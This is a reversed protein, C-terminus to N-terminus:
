NTKQTIYMTILLLHETHEQTFPHRIFATKKRYRLSPLPSPPPPDSRGKGYAFKPGIKGM